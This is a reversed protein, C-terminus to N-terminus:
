DTKVATINLLPNKVVLTSRYFDWIGEKVEKPIDKGALSEKRYNAGLVGYPLGLIEYLRKKIEIRDVDDEVRLLKAIKTIEDRSCLKLVEDLKWKNVSRTELEGGLFDEYEEIMKVAFGNKSLSDLLQLFNVDATIQILGKDIESNFVKAPDTNGFVREVPYTNSGVGGVIMYDHVIFKSEPNSAKRVNRVLGDLDPFFTTKQGEGLYKLIVELYEYDNIQRVPKLYKQRLTIGTDNVFDGAAIGSVSEYLKEGRKVVVMQKLDDILENALVVDYGTPLSDNVADGVFFDTTFFSGADYEYETKAEKIAVESIDFLSWEVRDAHDTGKESDIRQIEKYVGKEFYTGRPGLELVKLTSINSYEGELLRHLYRGFAQQYEERQAMTLFGIDASGGYYHRNLEAVNGSSVKIDAYRDM